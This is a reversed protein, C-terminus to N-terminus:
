HVKLKYAAPGYRPASLDNSGRLEPEATYCFTRHHTEKIDSGKIRSVHLYRYPYINTVPYCDSEAESPLTKTRQGLEPVRLVYALTDRIYKKKLPRRDPLVLTSLNNQAAPGLSAQHSIWGGLPLVLLQDNCLGRSKWHKFQLESFSSDGVLPLSATHQDSYHGREARSAVPTQATHQAPQLLVRHVHLFKVFFCDWRVRAFRRWRGAGLCVCCHRTVEQRTMESRLKHTQSSCNLKENIDTIWYKPLYSPSFWEWEEGM